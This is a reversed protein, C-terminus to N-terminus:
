FEQAEKVAKPKAAWHWRGILNEPGPCMADGGMPRGLGDGKAASLAFPIALTYIGARELRAGREKLTVAV